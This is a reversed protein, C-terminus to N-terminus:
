PVVSYVTGVEVRFFVPTTLNFDVGDVSQMEERKRFLYLSAGRQNAMESFLDLASNSIRLAGSDPAVCRLGLAQDLTEMRVEIEEGALKSGWVFQTARLQAYRLRMGSPPIMTGFESPVPLEISPMSSLGPYESSCMGKEIRFAVSVPPVLLDGIPGDVTYRGTRPNSTDELRIQRGLNQLTVLIGSACLPVAQFGGSIYTLTCEGFRTGDAAVLGDNFSEQIVDPPPDYALLKAAATWQTSSSSEGSDVGRFVVESRLLLAGNLVEDESPPSEPPRDDDEPPRDDDELPPESSLGPTTPFVKGSPERQCAGSSTCIYGTPCDQLSECNDESCGWLGVVILSGLLPALSWLRM